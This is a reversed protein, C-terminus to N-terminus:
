SRVRRRAPGRPTPDHRVEDCNRSARRAIVTIRKIMLASTRFNSCEGFVSVVALVFFLVVAGIDNPKPNSKTSNM